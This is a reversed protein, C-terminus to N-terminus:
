GASIRGLAHAFARIHDPTTGCCGGIIDVGADVLVGITAAMEAPDASYVVEDGILEPQGANPEVMIVADPAVARYRRAIEAFDAITLSTGCNAGLADAGAALMAEAAQEPTTGMM